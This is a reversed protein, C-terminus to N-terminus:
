ECYEHIDNIEVGNAKFLSIIEETIEFDSLSADNFINLIGSIINEYTKNIIDSCTDTHLSDIYESTKKAISTKILESYNM